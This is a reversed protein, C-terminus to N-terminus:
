YNFRFYDLIYNKDDESIAVEESVAQLMAPTITEFDEERALPWVGAMEVSAPSLLFQGEGEGYCAPRHKSRPVIIIHWETKTKRCYVNQRPEPETGYLESMGQELRSFWRKAERKSERIIYFFPYYVSLDCDDKEAERCMPLEEFPVAQFHLHDPASAGCQPGNYFVVYGPLAAALDMMEGIHPVIAQPRHELASLTLHRKFIPYPNIQIKYKDKWLISEQEAPQHEACLFCPRSNVSVADVRAAASRYRCPNYQVVFERGAFHYRRTAARSLAEYNDRALEWGALQRAYLAEIAATLNM